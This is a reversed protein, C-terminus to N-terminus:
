VLDLESDLVEVQYSEEDDEIETAASADNEYESSNTSEIV